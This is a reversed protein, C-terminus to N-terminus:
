QLRPCPCAARSCVASQGASLLGSESSLESSSLWGHLVAGHEAASFSRHLPFSFHYLRFEPSYALTADCPGDFSTMKKAPPGAGM